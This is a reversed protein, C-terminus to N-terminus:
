VSENSKVVKIGTKQVVEALIEAATRTDPPKPDIIDLYRKEIVSGGALRATNDAIAKLSDTVYVRFM